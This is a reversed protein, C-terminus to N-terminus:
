GEEPTEANAEKPAKTDTFDVNSESRGTPDFDDEFEKAGDIAPGECVGEFGFDPDSKAM